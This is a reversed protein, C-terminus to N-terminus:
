QTVASLAFLPPTNKKLALHLSFVTRNDTPIFSSYTFSKPALIPHPPLPPFGTLINGFGSSTGPIKLSIKWDGPWALSLWQRRTSWFYDTRDGCNQASASKPQPCPHNLCLFLTSATKTPRFPIFSSIKESQRWVNWKKIECGALWGENCIKKQKRTKIAIKDEHEEKRKLLYDRLYRCDILLM